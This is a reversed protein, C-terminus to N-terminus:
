HCRKCRSRALWVLAAGPILLIACPLTIPPSATRTYSRGTATDARLATQPQGDLDAPIPLGLLWLATPMTDAISVRQTLTVRAPIDPGVVIWPILRNEPINLFHNKADGGHDATLIWCTPRSPDADVAAVIRALLDDVRKVAELYEASMWGAVHGTSDPDRFHLFIVDPGDPALLPLLRDVLASQDGDIDTVECVGPEVFFDFKSKSAFFACRLGAQVAFDFLTPYDLKAPTDFDLVVGHRDAAVGTLMTTHNTMTVSPLDNIAEAASTGAARMAALAPAHQEDIADPRLGDFSILLLRPVDAGAAGICFSCHLICFSTMIRCLPLRAIAGLIGRGSHLICFSAILCSFWRCPAQPANDFPIRARGVTMEHVM